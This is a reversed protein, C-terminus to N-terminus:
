SWNENIYIKAANIAEEKTNWKQEGNVVVDLKGIKAYWHKGGDWVMFNVDEISPRDIDPFIMTEKYVEDCIVSCSEDFGVCRMGDAPYFCRQGHQWSSIRGDVIDKMLKNAAPMLGMGFTGTLLNMGVGFLSTPHDGEFLWKSNVGYKAYSDANFNKFLSQVMNGFETNVIGKTYKLTFELVDDISQPEFVWDSIFTKNGFTTKYKIFKYM